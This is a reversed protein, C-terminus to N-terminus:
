ARRVVKTSPADEGSAASDLAAAAAEEIRELWVFELQKKVQEPIDEYDKRNRAPLM